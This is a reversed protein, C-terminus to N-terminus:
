PSPTWSVRELFKTMLDVAVGPVEISDASDGIEKDSQNKDLHDGLCTNVQRLYAYMNLLEPDAYSLTKLLFLNLSRRNTRRLDHFTELPLSGQHLYAVILDLQKKLYSDFSESSCPIFQTFTKEKQDGKMAALVKDTTPEITNKGFNDNFSGLIKIFWYFFEPNLHNESFLRNADRLIVGGIRIMRLRQHVEPTYNDANQSIRTLMEVFEEEYFMDEWLNTATDYLRKSEEEDKIGLFIKEPLLGERGELQDSAGRVLSFRTAM